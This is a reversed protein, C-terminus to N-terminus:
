TTSGVTDTRARGRPWYWGILGITGLVLGLPVGWGTFVVAVIGAGGGVATLFPWISPGPLVERHHPEADVVRTVLVEPRDTRLGTVGALRPTHWLPSRDTVVPIRAFDYPPPPSDTAWELTEAGWPNAQARPGRRLTWAAHAFFVLFSVALVVAGATALANLTDWGLGAPYTYVRRPMGRLGLLHMPFFTLHFGVFALAFHWRGVRESLMRGTLKPFWHYIAGLLPFVAGGILTYHFHAVIFYTDHVQLDIPVSAIMVGTLGGALFTTFFGLVFLMPTTPRPRARWLSAIWCFFQVGTPIAIVMSAATFFSAGLKPVTTAFMHHVWLGFGLFSTVLMATVLAAYGFVPRRTATSLITSVIGLGPVFIIYVEPHGFFWFLHQWLLPDGGRQADFFQTEILRDATLFGTALVVAPMGFVIMVSTFVMAWVFLPIRDLSMGPARLRMATVILEVAVILASIETFTVMQSWTDVRKHPSYLSESLPPYTFWGADHGANLAFAGYMLLGGFLYLYYGCANVRPFAVNRTGVMLPVFYVGLGEMVPVAFLFMMTSGHMSFLQDFFDASVLASDPRALQLRMVAAEIGGLTLFAFATVIYRRGIATHHVNSLWGVFGRPQRWARELAAVDGATGSERPAHVDSPAPAPMGSM